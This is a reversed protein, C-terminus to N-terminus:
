LYRNQLVDKVFLSSNFSKVNRMHKLLNLWEKFVGKWGKGRCAHSNFSGVSCGRIFAFMWVTTLKSFSENTQMFEFLLQHLLHSGSIM